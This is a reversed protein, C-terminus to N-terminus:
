RRGRVHPPKSETASETPDGRRPTVWCGARHLGSKGRDSAPRGAHTAAVRGVGRPHNHRPPRHRAEHPRRGPGPNRAPPPRRIRGVLRERQCPVPGLRRFDGRYFAMYHALNTVGGAAPDWGVSSAGAAFPWFWLNMIWGFAFGSAFGYAALAGIRVPWRPPRTVLGAGLGVWGVAVM